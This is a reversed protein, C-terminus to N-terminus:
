SEGSVKRVVQQMFCQNNALTTHLSTERSFKAFSDSVECRWITAVSGRQSATLGKGAFLPRLNGLFLQAKTTSSGNFYAGLARMDMAAATSM